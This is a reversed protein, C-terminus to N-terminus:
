DYYEDEPNADALVLCIILIFSAIGGLILGAIFNAM